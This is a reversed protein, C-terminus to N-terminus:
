IASRKMIIADRISDPMLGEPQSESVSGQAFILDRAKYVM